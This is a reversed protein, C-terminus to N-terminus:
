VHFTDRIQDHDSELISEIDKMFSEGFVEEPENSTRHPPDLVDFQTKPESFDFFLSHTEEEIAPSNENLSSYVRKAEDTTLCKEKVKQPVERFNLEDIHQKPLVQTRRNSGM